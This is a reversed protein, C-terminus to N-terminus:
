GDESGLGWYAREARLARATDGSRERAWLRRDVDELEAEPLGWSWGSATRGTAADPAMRRDADEADAGGGADEPVAGPEADPAPWEPWGDYSEAARRAWEGRAAEPDPM